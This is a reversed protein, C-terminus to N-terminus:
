KNDEECAELIEIVEEETLEPYLEMFYELEEKDIM